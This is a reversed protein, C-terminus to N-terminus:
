LAAARASKEIFHPYGPSGLAIDLAYILVFSVAISMAVWASVGGIFSRKRRQPVLPNLAAARRIVILSGRGEIDSVLM